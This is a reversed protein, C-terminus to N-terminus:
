LSRPLNKLLFTRTTKVTYHHLRLLLEQSTIKTLDTWISPFAVVKKIWFAKM